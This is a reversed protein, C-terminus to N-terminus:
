LLRVSSFMDENPMYIKTIADHERIPMEEKMEYIKNVLSNFMQWEM